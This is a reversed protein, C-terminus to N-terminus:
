FRKFGYNNKIVGFAGEVQISRNIRLLIGKESTINELSQKRLRSFNPSITIKKSYKGKYCNKRFECNECSSCQYVKKSIKYGTATTYKTNGIYELRRNNHCIYSDNEEDYIM